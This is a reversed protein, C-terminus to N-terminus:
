EHANEHYLIERGKPLNIRQVSASLGSWQHMTSLAERRPVVWAADIGLRLRTM